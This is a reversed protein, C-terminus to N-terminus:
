RTVTRNGKYARVSQGHARDVRERCWRTVERLGQRLALSIVAGLAIASGLVGVALVFIVFIVLNDM